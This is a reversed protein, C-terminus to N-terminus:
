GTRPMKEMPPTSAQREVPATQPMQAMQAMQALPGLLEKLVTRAPDTCGRDM